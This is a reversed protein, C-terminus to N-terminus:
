DRDKNIHLNRGVVDFNVINLFRNRILRSGDHYGMRQAIGKVQIRYHFDRFLM